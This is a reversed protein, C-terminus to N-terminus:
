TVYPITCVEDMTSFLKVMNSANDIVCCIANNFSNQHEELIGDIMNKLERAFHKSRTNIIVALTRKTPLKTTLSVFYIQNCPEGQEM